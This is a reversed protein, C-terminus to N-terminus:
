SRDIDRLQDGGAPNPRSRLRRLPGAARAITRALAYSGSSTLGALVTRTLRAKTLFEDSVVALDSLAADRQVLRTRDVPAASVELVQAWLEDNYEALSRVQHGPPLDGSELADRVTAELESFRSFWSVGPDLRLKQVVERGVATDFMVVRKGHARAEVPPLGFGEYASPFLVAGARAYLLDVDADSLGGSQILHVNRPDAPENAHGLVIIELGSGQLATLASDVQKHPFRNGVILVHGGHRVVEATEIPVEVELRQDSSVTNIARAGQPVVRVRERLAALEPFYLAADDVTADSIAVIRDAFRLASRVVAKKYPVQLRLAWSRLAIIDLFSVVWRLCHRNLSSLQGIATVPSIAVGVDFVEDITTYDITRLGYDTLHFHEIVDVPAAITIDAGPDTLSSIYELFSLANKTSGDYILSLHHLDVLVKPRTPRNVLLDAFRDVAHYDNRIFHGVADRYFPYREVLIAANAADLAARQEAGFSTSGTHEVFAHNAILSSYGLANVRLCFDNEENYGKGFVEDFLGHNEIIPRRILFCFGIAVPAIYYRPLEERVANFVQEARAADRDAFRDRQFFPITAITADNSRPCVIAHRESLALVTRMEDLAGATVRTDSNLLLIDNDSGDLEYVARNCTRVFGLNESNREYRFNSLGFIMGRLGAEIADADPGCDNVLLVDYSAPDAHEKLSEVCVRLSPWDGYVPVVITVRNLTARADLNDIM